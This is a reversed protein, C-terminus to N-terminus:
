EGRLFCTIAQCAEEADLGYALLEIQDGNQLKLSLMGLVSKASAERTLGGFPPEGPFFEKRIHIEAGYETALRVIRTTDEPILAREIVLSRQFLHEM